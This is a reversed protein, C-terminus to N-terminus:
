RENEKGGQLEIQVKKLIYEMEKIRKTSNGKIMLIKRVDIDSMKNEITKLCWEVDEEKYPKKFIKYKFTLSLNPILHKILRHAFYIIGGAMFVYVMMQLIPTIINTVISM